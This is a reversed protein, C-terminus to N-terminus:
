NIRYRFENRYGLGAVVLRDFLADGFYRRNFKWCFESLYNQIYGPCIDHYVDLFLRKANSIAIHVWPLIEGVKEKPIVQPRHSAVISKFNTYSTSHDSIITSSSDINEKVKADITEAELDDIVIMKIHKVATHKHSKKTPNGELTEAMVLVKTKRQSGRGKKIPKGKEDDPVETTFFGEDLEVMDTLTYREDRKGMAIRLKHLLAWIPRYTKHGLQRQLESASFSKKTSTLLHIATFWYLLPLQSGHMVTNATLSQRYHCQKCEFCKKDNKWYHHLCGCKPCVVGERVRYEKLKRECAKENPFEKTFDILNM